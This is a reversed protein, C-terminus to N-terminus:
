LWFSVGQILAYCAVSGIADVIIGPSASFRTSGDCCKRHNKKTLHSHRGKASQNNMKRRTLPPMFIYRTLIWFRVKM